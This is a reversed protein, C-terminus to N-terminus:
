DGRLCEEIAKSFPNKSILFLTTSDFGNRRNVSNKTVLRQRPYFSAAVWRGCLTQPEIKLNHEGLNKVQIATIFFGRTQWSVLPMALASQNLFLPVIHRSEMPYRQFRSDGKLLEEPAYLQHIAFRVMDVYNLAAENTENMNQPQDNKVDPLVIDVTESPANEEASLNILIVLGNELNVQIRQPSFSKKALLYLRKYNNQVNLFDEQLLNNNLGLKM